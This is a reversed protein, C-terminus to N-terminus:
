LCALCLAGRRVELPIAGNAAGPHGYAPALPSGEGLPDPQRPPARGGVPRVDDLPRKRQRPSEAPLERDRVPEQQYSGERGGPGM